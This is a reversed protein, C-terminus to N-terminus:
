PWWRPDGIQADILAQSGLTFDGAPANAYEPDIETIDETNQVFRLYSDSNTGYHNCNFAHTLAGVGNNADSKRNTFLSNVYTTEFSNARVYIFRREPLDDFTCNIFTPDESGTYSVGGDVRLFDRGVNYFTSNSILFDSIEGNRFDIFDGGQDAEAFDHVICNDMYFSRVGGASSSAYVIGARAGSMECDSVEIKVEGTVDSTNIIHTEYGVIALNTLKFLAL